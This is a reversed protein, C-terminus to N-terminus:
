FPQGGSLRFVWGVVVAALALLSVVIAARAGPHGTANSRFAHIVGYIAFIVGLGRFVFFLLLALGAYVFSMTLAAGGGARMGYSQQPRQYYDPPRSWDHGAVPGPAALPQFLGPVQSAILVKGTAFEKLTSNPRVRDSKAWEALTAVDVPGYEKGDAGIVLYDM